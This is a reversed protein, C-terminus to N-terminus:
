IRRAAIHRTMEASSSGTPSTKPMRQIKWGDTFRGGLVKGKHRKEAPVILPDQSLVGKLKSHILQHAKQADEKNDSKIHFWLDGGTNGFVQSYENLKEKSGMGRPLPYGLEKSWAQWLEFGVGLLVVTKYDTSTSFKELGRAVNQWLGHTTLSYAEIYYTSYIAFDPFYAVGKQSFALNLNKMTKGIHYLTPFEGM